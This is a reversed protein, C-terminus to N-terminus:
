AETMTWQLFSKILAGHSYEMNRNSHAHCVPWLVNCTTDRAVQWGWELGLPVRAQWQQSGFGQFHLRSARLITIFGYISIGTWQDKYQILHM